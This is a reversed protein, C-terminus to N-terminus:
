VLESTTPTSSPPASLFTMAIATPTASPMSDPSLERAASIVRPSASIVRSPTAKPAFGTVKRPSDPTPSRTSVQVPSRDRLRRTPEPDPAAPLDLLNQGPQLLDGLAHTRGLGGVLQRLLV